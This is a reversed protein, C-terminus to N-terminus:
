HREGLCDEFWEVLAASPAHVVGIREAEILHRDELGSVADSAVLVRYDRESTDYITARPCNPYNCDAVVTTTVGTRNDPSGRAPNPLVREITAELDHGRLYGGGPLARRAFLDCGTRWRKRVM